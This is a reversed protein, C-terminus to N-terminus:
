HPPGWPETLKLGRRMAEDAAAINAPNGILSNVWENMAQIKRVEPYGSELLAELEKSKEEFDVGLWWLALAYSALGQETKLGKAEALSIALTLFTRRDESTAAAFEPLDRSFAADLKDVFRSRTMSEMQEDRIILVKGEPGQDAASSIAILWLVQIIVLMATKLNIKM